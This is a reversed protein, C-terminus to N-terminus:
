LTEIQQEILLVEPYHTEIFEISQQLVQTTHATSNGVCTIAIGSRQWKDLYDIEAASVNYTNHLRKLMSKIISRKEKLSSLGPLHIELTCLGVIPNKM